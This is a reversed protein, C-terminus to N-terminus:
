SPAAATERFKETVFNLWVIVNPDSELWGYPLAGNVTLAVAEEPRRTLKADVVEATQVTDPLVTVRTLAPVQM